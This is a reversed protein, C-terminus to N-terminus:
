ACHGPVETIREAVVASVNDRSRSLSRTVLERCVANLPVSPLIERIEDDNLGGPLGDSCLLLRGIGLDLPFLDPLTGEAGIIRTVINNLPRRSAASPSILGADVLERVRSHDRTILRVDRGAVYARSDGVNAIWGAGEGDLLAAVLTTGMGDCRENMSGRSIVERNAFIFGAEILRDIRHLGTFIEGFCKETIFHRLSDIAIRSAMDGAPLGGLGDAIALLFIPGDPTHIQWAGCTDENRKKMGKETWSCTRIM